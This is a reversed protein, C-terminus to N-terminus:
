RLLRIHGHREIKVGNYNLAEVRYTYADLGVGYEDPAWPSELQETFFVIDGFRNYVFIKVNTINHGKVVWDDNIGNGDQTFASPIYLGWDCFEVNVLTSATAVGCENSVEVEYLGPSTARKIQLSDGDNWRYSADDFAGPDLLYDEGECFSIEEELLPTPAFKEIVVTSSTLTCAGNSLEVSYLGADDVEISAASEGTNWVGSQGSSLILTTGACLTYEKQLISTPMSDIEILITDSVVCNFSTYSAVYEGSSMVEYQSSTVIDNWLVPTFADLLYPTSTECLQLDPGLDIEPMEVVNLLFVDNISCNGLSAQASITGGIGSTVSSTSEGSSWLISDYVGSASIVAEEGECIQSPGSLDLTPSPHVVVNLMDQTICGLNASDLTLTFSYTTIESIDSPTVFVPQAANGNQIAADGVWQYNYGSLAPNGLQITEGSCVDLDAGADADHLLNVPQCATMSIDDLGFDNGGPNSQYNVICIEASTLDGSNWTIVNEQWGGEAVLSDGVLEGNISFHLVALPHPNSNNTVDRGWYRITYDTQPQLLVNQCWVEIGEQATGNAIMFQGAPPNTHDQGIFDSHYLFAFSGIAYTGEPCLPCFFGTGLTMQTSFGTNGQSFDGNSVVDVEQMCAGCQASLRTSYFCLSLLLLIFLSRM